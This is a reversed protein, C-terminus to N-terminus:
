DRFDEPRQMAGYLLSVVALALVGVVGVAHQDTALAAASGLLLVAIAVPYVYADPVAELVAASRESPM